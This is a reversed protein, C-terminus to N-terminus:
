YRRNYEYEDDSVDIDDYFKDYKARNQLEVRSGYKNIMSEGINAASDVINRINDKTAVELSQLSKSNRIKSGIAGISDIAGRFDDAANPHQSIGTTVTRADNRQKKKRYMESVQNKISSYTRSGTEKLQKFTKMVSLTNNQEYQRFDHRTHPCSNNSDLHEEYQKLQDWKTVASEDRYRTKNQHFMKRFGCLYLTTSSLSKHISGM